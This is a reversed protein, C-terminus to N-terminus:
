MPKLGAYLYRARLKHVRFGYTFMLIVSDVLLSSKGRHMPRTAMRRALISAFRLIAVTPRYLRTIPITSVDVQLSLIWSKLACVTM